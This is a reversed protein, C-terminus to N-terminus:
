KEDKGDAIKGIAAAAVGIIALIGLGTICFGVVTFCAYIGELIANLLPHVNM